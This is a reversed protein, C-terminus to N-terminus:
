SDVDDRILEPGDTKPSNVKATVPYADNRRRSLGNPKALPLPPRFDPLALTNWLAPRRSKSLSAFADTEALKTVAGIPLGVADHFHDISQFSGHQQRYEVIRRAHTAHLGKVM